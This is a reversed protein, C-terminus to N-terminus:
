IKVYIIMDEAFVGKIEKEQMEYPSSGKTPHQTPTSFLAHKTSM